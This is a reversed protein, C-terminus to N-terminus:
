LNLLTLVRFPLAHREIRLLVKGQDFLLRFHRWPRRKALVHLEHNAVRDVLNVFSAGHKANRRILELPSNSRGKTGGMGGFGTQKRLKTVQEELGFREVGGDEVLTMM